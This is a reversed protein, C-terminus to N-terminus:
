WKPIVAIKLSICVSEPAWFYKSLTVYNTYSNKISWHFNKSALSQSFDSAMFMSFNQTEERSISKRAKVTAVKLQKYVKPAETKDESVSFCVGNPQSSAVLKLM